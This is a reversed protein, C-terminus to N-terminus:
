EGTNTRPLPNADIWALADNLSGTAHVYVDDGAPYVFWTGQAPSRMEYGSNVGTVDDIQSVRVTGGESEYCHIRGTDIRTTMVSSNPAPEVTEAVAKAAELWAVAMAEMDERLRRGIEIFQQAVAAMRAEDEPSLLPEPM